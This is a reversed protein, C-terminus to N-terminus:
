HGGMMHALLVAGLALILLACAAIGGRWFNIQSSHEKVTVELRPVRGQPQTMETHIESVKADMRILLDHDDPTM